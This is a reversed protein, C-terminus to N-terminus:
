AFWGPRILSIQLHKGCGRGAESRSFVCTLAGGANTPLDALCAPASLTDCKMSQAGAIFFFRKTSLALCGECVNSLEIIFMIVM